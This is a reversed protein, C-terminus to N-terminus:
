LFAVMIGVGLFVLVEPAQLIIFTFAMYLTFIPLLLLKVVVSKLTEPPNNLKLEYFAYVSMLWLFSGLILISFGWAWIRAILFEEYYKVTILPTVSIMFLVAYNGLLCFFLNNYHKTSFNLM